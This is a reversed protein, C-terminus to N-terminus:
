SSRMILSVLVLIVIINVFILFYMLNRKYINKELGMEIQRKRSNLIENREQIIQQQEMIRKNKEDILKGKNELAEQNSEILQATKQNNTSLAKKINDLETKANGLSSKLSATDATSGTATAVQLDNYNNLYESLAKNYKARLQQINNNRHQGYFTQKSSSTDDSAVDKSCEIKNGSEGINGDFTEITNSAPSAPPNNNELFPPTGAQLPKRSATSRRILQPMSRQIPQKSISSPRQRQKSVFNEITQKPQRPRKGISNKFMFSLPCHNM